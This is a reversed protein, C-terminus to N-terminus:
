AIASKNEALLTTLLAMRLYVGNRAQRFYAARPDDDVAPSIEDVRPLPHMVIANPNLRAMAAEDIVYVGRSAEYEGPTAFRERQIRTQYVVDVDPLVQSLDSEDRYTIGHSDLAQRVDSGMPVAPPSVFILETGTTLRFLLALSRVARGFRLDGVLAVRLGDIRGLEHKITYLDLLAQTPHEGPGDGGNIVPVSAVAAARRAAGQEYHRIVIADAYGEVIRITDEVSEGKIASSFERANETSLVAGGLRVMASEFSLRTRTSPEYFITALIRGALPTATRPLGRLRETQEFLQEVEARDFQGVEVVHRVAM